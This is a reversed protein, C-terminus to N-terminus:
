STRHRLDRIFPAAHVVLRRKGQRKADYLAQDARRILSEFTDGASLEALGCSASITPLSEIETPLGSLTKLIQRMRPEGQTLTAGVLAVAFEDGGLRAAVDDKRVGTALAEAVRKLVADGAGHGGADNVSKFNDLDLAAVVLRQSPTAMARRVAQEFYRRNTLGTLADLSAERKVEVLQEELASIRASFLDITQQWQHQREAAVRQLQDAEALLRSKLQEVDRIQLLAHLRDAASSIDGSIEQGNGVLMALTDRIMEVLRAMETRHEVQQARLAHLVAEWLEFCAATLRPVDPSTAGSLARCAELKEALAGRSGADQVAPLVEGTVQLARDLVPSLHAASERQRLKLTTLSM